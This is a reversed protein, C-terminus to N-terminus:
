AKHILFLQPPHDLNLQVHLELVGYVVQVDNETHAEGSLYGRCNATGWYKLTPTHLVSAFHPCVRQVIVFRAKHAHLLKALEKLGSDDSSGRGRTERAM